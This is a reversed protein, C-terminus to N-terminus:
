VESLQERQEVVMANAVHYDAPVRERKVALRSESAIEIDKNLRIM